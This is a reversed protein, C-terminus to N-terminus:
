CVLLRFFSCISVKIPGIAHNCQFKSNRDLNPRVPCSKFRHCQVKSQGQQSTTVHLVIPDLQALCNLASNLLTATCFLLATALAPSQFLSSVVQDGNFLKYTCTEFSLRPRIVCRHSRSRLWARCDQPCPTKACKKM